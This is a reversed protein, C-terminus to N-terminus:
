KYRPIRAIKTPWLIKYNKDEDDMEEESKRRGFDLFIWDVVGFVEAKKRMKEYVVGREEEFPMM